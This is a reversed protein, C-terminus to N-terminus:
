DLQAFPGSSLHRPLRYHISRFREKFGIPICHLSMDNGSFRM